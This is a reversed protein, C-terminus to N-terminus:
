YYSCEVEIGQDPFLGLMNGGEMKWRANEKEWREGEM